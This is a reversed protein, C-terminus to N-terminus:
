EIEIFFYYTTIDTDTGHGDEPVIMQFDVPSNKFGMKSDELIAMFVATRTAPEYLLIEEFIGDEAQTENTFLQLSKCEDATFEQGATFFADHNNTDFTENIGDLDTFDFGFETELITANTGNQNTAGGAGTEDTYTGSATMNFCQINLWTVSSNTAAYVEGSPTAVSWNYLMNSSGDSLSLGGSVNGYYGQWGQSGATGSFITLATMNGAIASHNGAGGSPSSESSGASTTAGNPEVASVLVLSLIAILCTAAILKRNM